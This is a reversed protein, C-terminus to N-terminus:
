EENLDIGCEDKVFTEIRASAADIDDESYKEELAKVADEDEFDVSEMENFASAILNMDDKIPGPADKALDAFLKASEDIEAGDDDKEAQEFKKCWADISAASDSSKSDDSSCAVGGATVIGVIM